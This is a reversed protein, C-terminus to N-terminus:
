GGVAAADRREGRGNTDASVSRLFRAMSPCNRLKTLCRARTPGISGAPIDMTESITEYSAPPERLLMGILQQCRPELEAFSDRLVQHREARLLDEDPTPGDANGAGSVGAANGADLPDFPSMRKGLRILRLCENRTTTSIWGPLAAPERLRSLQEVLRLWVTQNVDAADAQNLRHQNVVSYVLPTYRHVLEAWAAEGGAAAAAVLDAVPTM